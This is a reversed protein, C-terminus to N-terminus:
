VGLCVGCEDGLGWCGCRFVVLVVVHQRNGWVWRFRQGHVSDMWRHTAATTANVAIVEAHPHHICRWCKPRRFSSSLGVMWEGVSVWGRLWMGSMWRHTATTATDVAVVETHPHRVHRWCEPGRFSSSSGVMQEGVSVRGRSWASSTWRHTAATAANITIVKTHPRHFAGGASPGGSLHPM